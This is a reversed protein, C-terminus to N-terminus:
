KPVAVMFFPCRYHYKCPPYNEMESPYEETLLNTLADVTETAYRYQQYEVADKVRVKLSRLEIDLNASHVREALLADRLEWWHNPFDTDPDIAKWGLMERLRDNTMRKDNAVRGMEALPDLAEYSM